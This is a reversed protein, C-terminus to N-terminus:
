TTDVVLKALLVHIFVKFILSTTQIANYQSNSTM